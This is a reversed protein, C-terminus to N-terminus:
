LCKYFNTMLTCLVVKKVAQLDLFNNLFNNRPCCKGQISHPMCLRRWHHLLYDPEQNQFNGWYVLCNIPYLYTDDGHFLKWMQDSDCLLLQTEMHCLISFNRCSIWSTFDKRLCSYWVCSFDSLHPGAGSLVGLLLQFYIFGGLSELLQFIQKTHVFEMKYPHDDTIKRDYIPM